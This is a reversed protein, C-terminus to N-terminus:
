PTAASESAVAVVGNTAADGTTENYHDNLYGDYPRYPTPATPTWTPLRTPSMTPLQTPEWTGGNAPDAMFSDWDSYGQGVEYNPTPMGTPEPTPSVSPAATPSVTPVKRRENYGALGKTNNALACSVVEWKFHELLCNLDSRQSQADTCGTLGQQRANWIADKWYETVDLQLQLNERVLGPMTADTLGFKTKFVCVAPVYERDATATFLSLLLLTATWAAPM